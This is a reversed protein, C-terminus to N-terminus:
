SSTPKKGRWALYRSELQSLLYEKRGSGGFAIKTKDFIMQASSIHNSYIETFEFPRGFQARYGDRHEIIDGWLAIKGICWDNSDRRLYGYERDVIDASKFAFVGLGHEVDGQAPKDHPWDYVAVISRLTNDNVIRWCRWAIIEGAIIESTVLKRARLESEYSLTGLAGSPGMYSFSM